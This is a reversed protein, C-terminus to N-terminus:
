FFFAVGDSTLFRSKAELVLTLLTSHSATKCATFGPAITHDSKLLVRIHTVNVVKKTPGKVISYPSTRGYTISQAYSRGKWLRKWSTIEFTITCTGSFVRITLAAVQCHIFSRGAASVNAGLQLIGIRAIHCFFTSKSWM